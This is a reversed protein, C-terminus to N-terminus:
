PRVPLDGRTKHAKNGSYLPWHKPDLRHSLDAISIDGPDSATLQFLRESCGLAPFYGQDCCKTLLSTTFKATM